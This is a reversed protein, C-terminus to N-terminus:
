AAEVRYERIVVPDPDRGLGPGDPVRFRGDAAPDVLDGYLSAGLKVYLREVLSPEPLGALLHLTALFGPGFYPAHPMVAVGRAEALAAVKLFETVGGVKTVSPQAFDVAGADLMAQFQFATSANEGAALPIGVERRLQALATFNEPPFIPEELWYLDYPKLRLAMERAQVPTWPCNTDLTIPVGDGAAERAARVEPETTEHLKIAGYGEALARRTIEAVLEPDRYKYLSAYAPLETRRAGGLLQYLPLGAAKGALDWLAIDLGSIAFITIGYRGFLHLEQQLRHNLGAIDSADHGVALPAVMDEVAAQVARRCNYAFAEGWGGLGNDTEVRVLLMDLRTWDVGGFGATKAGGHDFPVRLPIAEVRAIKM